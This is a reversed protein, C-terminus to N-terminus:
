ERTCFKPTQNLRDLETIIECDFYLRYAYLPDNHLFVHTVTLSLFQCKIIYCHNKYPLHKLPETIINFLPTQVCQLRSLIAAIKWVVNESTNEQIFIYLKRNLNWKFKNGLTWNVINWWQNLYHSPMYADCPRLSNIKLAIFPKLYLCKRLKLLDMLIYFSM